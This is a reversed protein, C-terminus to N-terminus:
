IQRAPIHVHFVDEAIDTAEEENPVVTYQQLWLQLGDGSDAQVAV